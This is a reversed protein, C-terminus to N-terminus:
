ITTVEKLAEILGKVESAPITISCRAIEGKSTYPSLTVTNDWDSYYVEVGSCKGVGNRGLFRTILGNAWLLKVVKM